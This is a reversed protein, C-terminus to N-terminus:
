RNNDLEQHDKILESLSAEFMRPMLKLRRVVVAGIVAGVVIFLGTLSGMVLLRHTDWFIVVVLITLLVAGFCLSFLSIFALALLSIFRERGEELDTSILELRTHVIAILSVTLNKLSSLLGETAQNTSETM